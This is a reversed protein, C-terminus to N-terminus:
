GVEDKTMAGRCIEDDDEDADDLESEDSLPGSEPAPAPPLLASKRAPESTPASQSCSPSIARSVCCNWYADAASM